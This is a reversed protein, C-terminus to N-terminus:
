LNLLSVFYKEEANTAASGGVLEDAREKKFCFKDLLVFRNGKRAVLCASGDIDETRINRFSGIKEIINALQAGVYYARDNSTVDDTAPPSILKGKYYFGGEDDFVVTNKSQHFVYAKAKEIRSETTPHPNTAPQPSGGNLEELKKLRALFSIAGGTSTYMGNKNGYYFSGDDAVAEQELSIKRMAPSSFSRTLFDSIDNNVSFPNNIIERISDDIGAKSSNIIFDKNKWHTMEHALVFDLRSLNYIDANEMSNYNGDTYGDDNVENCFDVMADTLIVYGGPMSYAVISKMNRDIRVFDQLYRGDVADDYLYLDKPSESAILKYVRDIDKDNYTDDSVDIVRALFDGFWREEDNSLAASAPPMFSLCMVATLLAKKWMYFGGDFVPSDDGERM